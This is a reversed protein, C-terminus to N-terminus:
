QGKWVSKLRADRGCNTRYLKYRVPNKRFYDQHYDEAPWFANLMLIETYVQPLVGSAKLQAKSLEAAERQQANAFFIATRYQPGIDCFQGNSVTPDVTKWYHKLLDGYSIRAPDYIVKVVEIHGSNGRSVEEYTPNPKRGGAYGSVAEVVGPLAEFDAETCWFCGGAFVAFRYAGEVDGGTASTSSVAAGSATSSQAMASQLGGNSLAAVTLIVAAVLRGSRQSWRAVFGCFVDSIFM